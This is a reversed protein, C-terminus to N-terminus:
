TAAFSIAPISPITPWRSVWIDKKQQFVGIRKCRSVYTDQERQVTLTDFPLSTKGFRRPGILFLRAANELSRVIQQLEDTRGVLEDRRVERGYEFPNKKPQDALRASPPMRDRGAQDQSLVLPEASVVM